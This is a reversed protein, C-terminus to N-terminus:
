QAPTTLAHAAAAAKILEEPSGAYALVAFQPKGDEEGYTAIAGQRVWLRVKNPTPLERWTQGAAHEQLLERISGEAFSGAGGLKFFGESTSHGHELTVVVRYGDYEYIRTQKEQEVNATQNVPKGYRHDVAAEDEGLLAWGSSVACVIALLILGLKKM